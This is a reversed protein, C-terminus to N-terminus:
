MSMAQNHGGIVHNERSSGLKAAETRLPKWEQDQQSEKYLGMAFQMNMTVSVHKLLTNYLLPCRQLM